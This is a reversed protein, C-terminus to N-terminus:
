QNRRTTKKRLIPFYMYKLKDGTINDAWLHSFYGVALGKLFSSQAMHGIIWLVIPILAIHTFGGHKFLLWGPLVFGLLSSKCDVDPLLSGLAVGGIYEPTITDTMAMAGITYLGMALHEKGNM